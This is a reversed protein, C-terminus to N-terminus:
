GIALGTLEGKSELEAFIDLVRSISKRKARKEAQHFYKKEKKTKQPLQKYDVQEIKKAIDHKVIYQMHRYPSMNRSVDTQAHYHAEKAQEMTLPEGDFPCHYLQYWDSRDRYVIKWVAIDTLVYLDTDDFEIQVEKEKADIDNDDFSEDEPQWSKILEIRQEKTTNAISYDEM